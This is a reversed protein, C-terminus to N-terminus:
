GGNPSVKLKSPRDVKEEGKHTVHAKVHRNSMKPLKSFYAGAIGLAARLALPLASPAM